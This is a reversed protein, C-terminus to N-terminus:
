TREVSAPQASPRATIGRALAGCAVILAVAMLAIVVTMILGGVDQIDYLQRARSIILAHLAVTAVTGAFMALTAIAAPWLAFRVTRGSAGGRAVALSACATGAVLGIGSTALWVLQLVVNLTLHDQAPPGINPFVLALIVTVIGWVLASLVAVGFLTLVDRRKEKLAAKITSLALPVGFAVMALFALYGALTAVRFVTAIEPHTAVVPNWTALPDPLRQLAIWGVGFLAFACFIAIESTRIRHAM